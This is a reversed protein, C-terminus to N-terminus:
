LHTLKYTFVFNITNYCNGKNVINYTNSHKDM